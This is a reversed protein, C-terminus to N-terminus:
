MSRKKHLFLYNVKAEGQRGCIMHIPSKVELLFCYLKQFIVLPINEHHTPFPTSM